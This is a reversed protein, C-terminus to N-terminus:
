LRSFHGQVKGREEQQGLKKDRPKNLEKWGNGITAYLTFFGVMAFGSLITWALFQENFDPESWPILGQRKEHMTMGAETATLLVFCLFASVSLIWLKKLM